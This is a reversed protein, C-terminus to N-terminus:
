DRAARISWAGSQSGARWGGSVAAQAAREFLEVFSADGTLEVGSTWTGSYEGDRGAVVARWAGNWQTPSKAASWAGSALTGGQGDVLTWTGTVTGTAPDPIATWTGVLTLGASNRASWTGSRDARAAGDAGRRVVAQAGSVDIAAVLLLCLLITSKRLM